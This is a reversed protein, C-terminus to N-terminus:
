SPTTSTANGTRRHGRRRRGARPAPRHRRRGRGGRRRPRAGRARSELRVRASAPLAPRPDGRGCGRTGVAGAGDRAGALGHGPPLRGAARRRRIHELETLLGAADRRGASVPSSRSPGTRRDRADRRRRPRRLGRPRARQAARVRGDRPAVPAVHQPRRVRGPLAAAHPRRATAPVGAIAPQARARLGYRLVAPEPLPATLAPTLWGANGWSAGAGVHDREYVTVRVGAEQLFWATALGVMGAGIVAVDRPAGGGATPAPHHHHSSMDAGRGGRQRPPDIRRRRDSGSPGRARRTISSPIGTGAGHGPVPLEPRPPRAPSAAPQSHGSSSDNSRSPSAAAFQVARLQRRRDPGARHRDRRHDAAHPRRSQVAVPDPM